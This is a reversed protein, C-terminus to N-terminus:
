WLPRGRSLFIFTSRALVRVPYVVNLAKPDFTKYFRHCKDPRWIGLNVAEDELSPSDGTRNVGGGHCSVEFVAAICHESGVACAYVLMFGYGNSPNSVNSLSAGYAKVSQEVAALRKNLALLLLSDTRDQAM